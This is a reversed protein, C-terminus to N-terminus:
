INILITKCKERCYNELRLIARDITILDRSNKEQAPASYWLDTIPTRSFKEYGIKRIRAAELLAMGRILKQLNTM